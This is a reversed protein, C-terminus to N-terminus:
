RVGRRKQGSSDLEVPEKSGALEAYPQAFGPAVIAPYNYEPPSNIKEQQGRRRKWVVVGLILGVVILPGIVAAAIWASRRCDM